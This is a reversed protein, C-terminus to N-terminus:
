YGHELVGVRHHELGALGPQLLGRDRHQRGHGLEQVVRKLAGDVDEITWQVKRAPQGVGAEERAAELSGFHRKYTPFSPFGPEATIDEAKPPRGLKGTLWRLKELLDDRHYKM